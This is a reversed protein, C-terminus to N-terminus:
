NKQQNMFKYTLGYTTDNFWIGSIKLIFLNNKKLNNAFFHIVGHQMQEVIKYQPIKDKCLFMNLLEYEINKVQEIIQNNLTINFACKYKNFYKEIIPNIIPIFLTLGNLSIYPTSYIIRIFNSDSIINNKISESYFINKINYQDIQQIINM